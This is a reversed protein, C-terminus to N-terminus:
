QAVAKVAVLLKVNAAVSDTEEWGVHFDKRNLSAEGTIHALKPSFEDLTFTLVLPLTVGKITLKGEAEYRKGGLAKFADATFTAKPFSKVDLWDGKPLQEQAQSDNATVKAMDVTVEAKSAALADPHFAINATFAPFQGTIKAAGKMIEFGISSEAPVITFAIPAPAAYAPFAFLLLLPFIKRM